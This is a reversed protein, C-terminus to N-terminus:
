YILKIYLFYINFLWYYNVILFEGTPFVFLTIANILHVCKYQEKLM